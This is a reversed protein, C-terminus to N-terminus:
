TFMPLADDDTLDVFEIEKEMGGEKGELNEQYRVNMRKVRSRLQGPLVPNLLRHVEWESPQPIVGHAVMQVATCYHLTIMDIKAGRTYLPMTSSHSEVLTLTGPATLLVKKATTGAVTALSAPQFPKSFDHCDMIGQHEGQYLYIQVRGIGGKYANGNKSACPKAFKLAKTTECGDKRTWYGQYKTTQTTGHHQYM